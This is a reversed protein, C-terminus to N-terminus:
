CRNRHSAFSLQFSVTSLFLMLVEEREQGLPRVAARDRLRLWDPDGASFDSEPAARTWLLPLIPALFGAQILNQFSHGQDTRKPEEREVTTVTVWDGM